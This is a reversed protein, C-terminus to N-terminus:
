KVEGGFIENLKSQTEAKVTKTIGSEYTLKHSEDIVPFPPIIKRQVYYEIIVDLQQSVNRNEAKAIQELCEANVKKICHSKVIRDSNKSLPM